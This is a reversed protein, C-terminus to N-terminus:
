GNKNVRGDVYIRLNEDEYLTTASESVKGNKAAKNKYEIEVKSSKEAVEKSFHQLYEQVVSM